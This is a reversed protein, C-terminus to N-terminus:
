SFVLNLCRGQDASNEQGQDQQRNTTQPPFPSLCLLWLIVQRQGDNESGEMQVHSDATNTVKSM